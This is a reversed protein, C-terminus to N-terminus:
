NFMSARRNIVHAIAFGSFVVSLALHSLSIFKSHSGCLLIIGSITVLAAILLMASTAMKKKVPIETYKKFWAPHQVFHATILLIFLIGCVEHITWTLSDDYVHMHHIEAHLIIGTLLLILCTVITAIDTLIKMYMKVCFDRLRM